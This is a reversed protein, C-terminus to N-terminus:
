QRRNNLSRAHQHAWIPNVAVSTPPLPWAAFCAAESGWLETPFKPPNMPSRTGGIHNRLLRPARLSSPAAEDIFSKISFIPLCFVFGCFPLFYVVLLVHHPAANLDICGEASCIVWKWLNGNVSLTAGGSQDTEDVTHTHAHAYTYAHTHELWIVPRHTHICAHMCM